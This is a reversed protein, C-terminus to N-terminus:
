LSEEDRPSLRGTVHRCDEVAWVRERDTLERAWALMVGLGDERSPVTRTGVRRGTLEQVAACTHTQKHADVGIVMM